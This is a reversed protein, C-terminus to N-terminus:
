ILQRFVYGRSKLYEIIGPLAEASYSKGRSDHMLVILNKQDRCFFKVNKILESPSTVGEADRSLCNWDVYHYGKLKVAKKIELPRYKSGGPFRILKSNYGPLVSKLLNENKIIDKLFNDKSEYLYHPDHGYTHNGIVHGKEYELKVLSENNIISKGILFFTAKIKYKDLIKLIKPTIDPSPGDDFTLYAIKQENPKNSQQTNKKNLKESDQIKTKLQIVEKNDADDKLILNILSLAEKYNKINYYKKAKEIKSNIFNQRSNTIEKEIDSYNNLDEKKVKNYFDYAKQFENKTLYAQVVKINREDYLKRCEIIKSSSIKYRSADQFCVKEFLNIANVYKGDTMNKVGANYNNKSNNLLKCLNIEDKTMATDRYQGAKNLYDIASLYNERKIQNDALAWYKKYNKISITEKIILISCTFLVIISIMKFIKFSKSRM